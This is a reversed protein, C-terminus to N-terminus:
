KKKNRKFIGQYLGPVIVTTVVLFFILAGIIIVTFEAVSWDHSLLELGSLRFAAQPILSKM